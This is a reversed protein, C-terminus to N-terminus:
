RCMMFISQDRSGTASRGMRPNPFVAYYLSESQVICISPGRNTLVLTLCVNSAEGMGREACSRVSMLELQPRPKPRTFKNTDFDFDFDSYPVMTCQGHIHIVRM